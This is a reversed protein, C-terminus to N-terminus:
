NHDYYVFLTIIILDPTKIKSNRAKLALGNKKPKKKKTKKWIAELLILIPWYLTRCVRPTPEKPLTFLLIDRKNTVFRNFAGIKNYM